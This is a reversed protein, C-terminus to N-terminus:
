LSDDDSEGLGEKRFTKAIPSSSCDHSDKPGEATLIEDLDHTEESLLDRCHESALCGRSHVRAAHPRCNTQAGHGCPIIDRKLAESSIM